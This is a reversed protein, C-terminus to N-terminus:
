LWPWQPHLSLPPPVVFMELLTSSDPYQTMSFISPLMSSLIWHMFFYCTDHFAFLFRIGELQLCTFHFYTMLSFHLQTHLAQIRHTCHPILHQNRLLCQEGATISMLNQISSNIKFLNPREALITSKSFLRERHLILLLFKNPNGEWFSSCLYSNVCCELSIHIFGTALLLAICWHPWLSKKFTPNM